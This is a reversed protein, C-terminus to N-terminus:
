VLSNLFYFAQLGVLRFSINCTQPFRDKGDKKVHMDKHMCLLYTKQTDM